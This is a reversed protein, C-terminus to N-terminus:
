GLAAAPGTSTTALVLDDAYLLMCSCRSATALTPADHQPVAQMVRELSDLFEIFMGCLALSLPSRRRRQMAMSSLSSAVKKGRQTRLGATYPDRCALPARRLRLMTFHRQGQRTPFQVQQPGMSSHPTSAPYQLPQRTGCPSQALGSALQQGSTSCRGDFRRSQVSCSCVAPM